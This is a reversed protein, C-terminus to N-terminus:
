ETTACIENRTVFHDYHTTSICVASSSFNSLRAIIGIGIIIM